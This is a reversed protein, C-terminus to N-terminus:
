MDLVLLGAALPSLRPGWAGSHVSMEVACSPSKDEVGATRVKCKLCSASLPIHHSLPPPLYANKTAKVLHSNSTNTTYSERRSKNM